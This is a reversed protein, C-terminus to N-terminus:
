NRAGTKREALDSLKELGIRAMQIDSKLVLGLLWSYDRRITSTYYSVFLDGDKMVVGPYSTDGASPLDSIRVLRDRGVRYVATRKRGLLSSMGYWRSYGEPDFRAVAYVQGKYSFLAPGDLRTLHSRTKSWKMYPPSSVAILTSADNSGQHWARRGELRATVVMDGDPLFEFATEDNRDGTHIQSVQEWQTGNNSKLLISKGHEHWYATVYWIRSDRTKPRWFLWGQPEVDQLPSWNVGDATSTQATCYPEPEFGLNKLVYLFLRDHIVAFKPDRVDEGGVKLDRVHEWTRADKSKLVVLKSEKTGMHYPSSAHVLYFTENWFILDTNSNHMGDGVATWVEMELSEEVQATNPRFYWVGIISLGIFAMCLFVIGIWAFIKKM